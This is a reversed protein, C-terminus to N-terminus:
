GGRGCASAWALRTGQGLASFETRALAEASRVIPTGTMGAFLWALDGESHRITPLREPPEVAKTADAFREAVVFRFVYNPALGMRLDNFVIRGDEEQLRFYGKTFTTLKDYAAIGAACARLDPRRPYTYVTGHAPDGFAPMYLSIQETPTIALAQWYLANFPTPMAILREPSVGRAALAKAARTEVSSQVAATAGMYATSVALATWAWRGVRPRWTGFILATLTVALLPLTYVPDIIFISGVGYPTDTLPWLLRTGYVTMADILAHTAFMLYVALYTRIRAERLGKFLRVLGEAFLPTALAQCILSHSPGRHSVFADVPDAAPIFTDLDPLTAMVGGILAAKRLGVRPGLAVVGITAGLAFQTVSDM